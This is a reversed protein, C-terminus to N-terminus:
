IGSSNEEFTKRASNQGLADVPFLRLNSINHHNLHNDKNFYFKDVM